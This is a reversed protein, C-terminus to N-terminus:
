RSIGWYSPNETAKTAADNRSEARVHGSRGDAFEVYYLPRGAGFYQTGKYAYGGRSLPVKRCVTVTAPPTIEFWPNPFNSM